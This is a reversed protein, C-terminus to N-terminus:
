IHRKSRRVPQQKRKGSHRQNRKENKGLNYKRRFESVDKVDKMVIGKDRGVFWYGRFLPLLTASNYTQGGVDVNRLETWKVKDWVYMKDDVISYKIRVDSSSIVANNVGFDNPPTIGMKSPLNKFFTVAPSDKFILIVSFMVAIILVAIILKVPMEDYLAGKKSKM